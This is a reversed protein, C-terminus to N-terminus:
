IKFKSSLKRAHECLKTNFNIKFLMGVIRGDGTENM